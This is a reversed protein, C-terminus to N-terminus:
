KLMRKTKAISEGMTPFFGKASMRLNEEAYCSLYCRTCDGKFADIRTQRHQASRWIEEMEQEKLNGLSETMFSCLTVNGYVDLEIRNSGQLCPHPFYSHGKRYYEPISKLYAASNNLLGTEKKFALLRDIEIKLKELFDPEQYPSERVQIEDHFYGEHYATFRIGDLKQERVFHCLELWQDMNDQMLVSGIRINKVGSNKLYGISRTVKTFGNVLGRTLLYNDNGVGDLGITVVRPNLLALQEAKQRTILTGNTNIGFGLGMNKLHGLIKFIDPRTFIEGSANVGVYEVGFAKLRSFIVGWEESSPENPNRDRKWFDCMTCKSNCYETLYVNAITPKLNIVARGGTLPSIIARTSEKILLRISTM